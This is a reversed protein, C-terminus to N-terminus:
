AMWGILHGAQERLSQETLLTESDYRRDTCCVEFWTRLIHLRKAGDSMSPTHARIIRDPDM